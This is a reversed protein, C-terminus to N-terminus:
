NIPRNQSFWWWHESKKLEELYDVSKPMLPRFNELACVLEHSFDSCMVSEWFDIHDDVSIHWFRYKYSIQVTAMGLILKSYTGNKQYLKYHGLGPASQDRDSKLYDDRSGELIWKRSEVQNHDLEVWHRDKRRRNFFM